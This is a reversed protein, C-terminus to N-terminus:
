ILLLHYNPGSSIEFPLSAPCELTCVLSKEVFVLTLLVSMTNVSSVCVAVSNGRFHLLENKCISMM